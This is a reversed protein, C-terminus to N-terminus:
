FEVISSLLLVSALAVGYFMLAGAIIFTLNRATRMPSVARDLTLRAASRRERGAILRIYFPGLPLRLTGRIDVPHQQWPKEGVAQAIATKQEATLGSYIHSPLRDFLRMGLVQTAGDPMM